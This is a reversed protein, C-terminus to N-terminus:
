PNIATDWATFTTNLSQYLNIIADKESKLAQVSTDTPYATALQNISTVMTAKSTTWSPIGNEASVAKAVVQKIQERWRVYSMVDDNRFADLETRLNVYAEYHAASMAGTSAQGALTVVTPSVASASPREAVQGIGVGLLLAAIFTLRLKM